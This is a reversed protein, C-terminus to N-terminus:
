ILSFSWVIFGHGATNEPSYAAFMLPSFTTLTFFKRSSSAAMSFFMVSKLFAFSQSVTTITL